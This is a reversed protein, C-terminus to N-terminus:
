GGLFVMLFFLYQLGREVPSEISSVDEVIDTAGCSMFFLVLFCCILIKM